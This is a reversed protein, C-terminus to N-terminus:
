PSNPAAASRWCSASPCAWSIGITTVFFTLHLGGWEDWGYGDLGIADVVFFVIVATVLPVGWRTATATVSGRLDRRGTENAAWAAGLLAFSWRGLGGTGALVVMSTLVLAAGVFVARSRVSAPVRWGVERTVVVLVLAAALGLYPPWTRAFSVFVVLVAVIVWFRRILEPWTPRAAPLGKEVADDYANHALAGSTFGLAAVILLGSSWPRWLEDRPFQGVMFLRLNARIIAFDTDLVWSLALWGLVLTATGIVITIVSNHWSDFLNKRMWQGPPLKDLPPRDADAEAALLQLELEEPTPIHSQAM